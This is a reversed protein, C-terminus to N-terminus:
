PLKNREFNILAKPLGEVHSLKLKKMANWYKKNTKVGLKSFNITLSKTLKKGEKDIDMLLIAEETQKAIKECFQDIPGKIQVSKIGSNELARIDKLGEVIIISKEKKLEEIFETM